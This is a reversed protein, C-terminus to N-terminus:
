VNESMEELVNTYRFNFASIAGIILFIIISVAAALGYYSSGEGQFAMKYTYSILIDTSGATTAGVIPPDGETVLFIVNFNNFNFAFSGILLPAISIMLLPLTINKFQQWPNAGDVKAVEYYAPQISQLAGLTIVMMYPFGLWLNVILVAVKALMPSQFWPVAVNFLPEFIKANVVGANTNFFGRWMLASIFAPIAYPMILAAKYLPQFRLDDDNLLLAAGLGLLFTTLVSMFAWVFTWTFVRFFPGTILPDTFVRRFNAFGVHIQFGPELEEGTQPSVFAGNEPVYAEGTRQDVMRDKEPQYAYQQNLQTFQNMGTIRVALEGREPRWNQLESLSGILESRPLLEYDDFEEITGDGDSDVFRDSEPNIPELEEGGTLYTEEGSSSHLIVKLEGAPNRYADFDFSKPDEPRYYQDELNDIAQSKSLLHGTGYNTFSLYVTYGIPYVIFAFLFILGPVLYRLPYARKSLFIWNILATAVVLALALWTGKNLYLFSAAWVVLADLLGFVLIKLSTGLLTNKLYNQM